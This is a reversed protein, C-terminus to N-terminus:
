NADALTFLDVCVLDGFNPLKDNLKAPNVPRPEKLRTCTPCKYALAAAVAEDSGGTLRISRALARSSPHGLNSHLTKIATLLAPTFTSEIPDTLMVEQGSGILPRTLLGAILSKVFRMPYRETGRTLSHQIRDHVHGPCRENLKDIIGSCNSIIRWPKRLPVGTAPNQLGYACGDVVTTLPLYRRLQKMEPCLQENFGDCNAPWEFSAGFREGEFEKLISLVNQIMLRSERRQAGRQERYAESKHANIRSWSSWCTCPLSIHIRTHKGADLAKKIERTAHRATCVSRADFHPLAIRLGTGGARTWQNMLESDPHCCWEILYTTEETPSPQSKKTIVLAERHADARLTRHIYQPRVKHQAMVQVKGFGSQLLKKTGARLNKMTQDQPVLGQHDPQTDGFDKLGFYCKPCDCLIRCVSCVPRQCQRCGKITVATGQRADNDDLAQTGCTGCLLAVVLVENGNEKNNVPNRLQLDHPKAALAPIGHSRGLTSVAPHPTAHHKITYDQEGNNTSLNPTASARGAATCAVLPALMTLVRKVWGGSTQPKQVETLNVQPRPPGRRKREQLRRPLPTEVARVSTADKLMLWSDPRLDVAFHGAQSDLLESRGSGIRLWSNKMDLTAGLPELLDRGLLLTLRDSKVISFTIFYARGALVAPVTAKVLSELIGGNGFRYREREDEETIYETIGNAQLLKKYDAYWRDGAVSCRCATDVVGRGSDIPKEDGRSAM